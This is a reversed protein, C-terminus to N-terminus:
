GAQQSLCYSISEVSWGSGVAVMTAEGVRSGRRYLTLRGGGESRIEDYDLSSLNNGLFIRLAEEPEAAIPEDSYEADVSANYTCLASTTAPTDQSWGTNAACGSGLM